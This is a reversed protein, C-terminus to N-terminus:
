KWLSSGPWVNELGGHVLKTGSWIARFGSCSICLERHNKRMGGDLNFVVGVEKELEQGQDRGVLGAVLHRRASELLGEKERERQGM